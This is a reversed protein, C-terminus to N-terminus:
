FPLELNVTESNEGFKKLCTLRIDEIKRQTEKLKEVLSASEESLWRSAAREKLTDWSQKVDGWKAILYPQMNWNYGKAKDEEDKWRYGIAFPDPTVADYHICIKDFYGEKVSLSVLELVELPIPSLNYSKIDDKKPCLVDIIEMQTKTAPQFPVPSKGVKLINQQGTLGLEEKLQNWQDLKENDYILEATEEIVFTEVVTKMERHNNNLM